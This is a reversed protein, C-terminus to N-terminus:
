DERREPFEYLRRLDPDETIAKHRKQAIDPANKPDFKGGIEYAGVLFTLEEDKDKPGRCLLPRLRIKGGIQLKYIHPFRVGKVKIPGAILGPFLISEGAKKLTRLKEDFQAKQATELGDRWERVLGSRLDVGPARHQGTYDYVIM